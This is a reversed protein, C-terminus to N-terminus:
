KAARRAAFYADTEHPTRPGRVNDVGWDNPDGEFLRLQYWAGYNVMIYLTRDGWEFPFFLVAEESCDAPCIFIHSCTGIKLRRKVMEWAAQAPHTKVYTHGYKSSSEVNPVWLADKDQVYALSYPKVRSFRGGDNDREEMFFHGKDREEATGYFLIKRCPHEEQYRGSHVRNGEKDRQWNGDQKKAHLRLDYHARNAFWGVFDLFAKARQFSTHLDAAWKEAAEAYDPYDLEIRPNESPM